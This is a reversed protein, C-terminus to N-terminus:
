HYNLTENSEQLKEWETMNDQVCAHKKNQNLFNNHHMAGYNAPEEYKYKLQPNRQKTRWGLWM